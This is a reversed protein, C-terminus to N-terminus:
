SLEKGEPDEPLYIENNDSKNVVFSIIKTILSIFIFVFAALVLYFSYGHMENHLENIVIDQYYSWGAVIFALPLLTFAIQGAVINRTLGVKDVRKWIFLHFIWLAVAQILLIFGTIELSIVTASLNQECFGNLCHIFLGGTYNDKKNYDINDHNKALTGTVWYNTFIGISYLLLSICLIVTAIIDFIKM